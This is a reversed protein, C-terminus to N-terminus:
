EVGPGIIANPQFNAYYEGLPTLDNNEDFLISSVLAANNPRANFWAFRHVYDAEYLAPLVAEMFNLVQDPTYNNDATNTASWDAVAFETIWIPRGYAEYVNSMKELFSTSKIGGYNHVCVFDIRFNSLDARAMFNSMWNNLPGTTAPSGLPVDIQELKPWLALAEDVTMNAQSELDPENFGLVAEILGDEALQNIRSVEEDTVSGRGWFMPVYEVNEPEANSLERGWSYHWFVKLRSVRTSWNADTYNIAAGKKKEVQTLSEFRIEDIDVQQAGIGAEDGNADALNFTLRSISSLITETAGSFTEENLPLSIEQWRGDATFNVLINSSGLNDNRSIFNLVKVNLSDNGGSSPSRVSFKLVSDAETADYFTDSAFTVFMNAFTATVTQLNMTIFNQSNDAGGGSTNFLLNLTAGVSHSKQYSNGALLPISPFGGAREGDAYIKQGSLQNTQDEALVTVTFNTTAIEAGKTLTATLTVMVNTGTPRTVSGTSGSISIVNPNDSTWTIAVGDLGSTPLTLDSRVNDADDEATFADALSLNSLANSVTEPDTLGVPPPIYIPTPSSLCGQIFAVLLMAGAGLLPLVKKYHNSKM